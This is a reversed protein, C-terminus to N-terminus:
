TTASSNSLKKNIANTLDHLDSKFKIEREFNSVQVVNIGSSTLFLYEVDRFLENIEKEVEDVKYSELLFERTTGALCGTKLSPTFLMEKDYEYWFINAMCASVIQNKENIRIAEDFGNKKADELALINELYNCSKTGALPSNSNVTFPSLTLSINQKVKRSDATQIVLSTRDLNSAEWIKSSSEDFFTMRCRGNKVSNKKIIEALSKKVKKETFESLDINLKESSDNLRSWHKEWLFPKSNYIAITTFVGKGYLAASSIANIKTDQAPFLKHNLSVFKHM